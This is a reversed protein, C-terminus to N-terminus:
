IKHNLPFTIRRLVTKGMPILKVPKVRGTSQDVMNGTLHQNVGDQYSFDLANRDLSLNEHQDSEAFCYYDHFGELPYDRINERRYPIDLAYVLPGRQFYIEGNPFEQPLIEHVFQVRIKDGDSWTKRVEYFGNKLVADAGLIVADKAWGPMRFYLTFDIPQDISITFEIIDSYPYQTSQEIQVDVGNVDTKLESPGYSIAALGNEMRGWMQDVYYSFNRTYNPACCVAPESHTPSYKYRVEPELGNLSMGDLKYCNDPKGYTIASGDHNRFGLIGNFTLKEARDAYSMDGTKFAAQSFFNRLELMTCFETATETPDAALGAIWEMAHGAGSPLLCNNLKYLANAYATKLEDYGTAYYANLLSRLHEYTHVGHGTFPKDKEILFPYRVDNFARNIDFTSFARYLYVAYDQYVQNNTIRYLTECVDTLMLGHTVGGFANKLDFPNRVDENYNKMTVAMAKEVAELVQDEKTLEYYALMMRFATTQAWLEGNSGEHQYRLNKKYIGIYGDEDQSDLLNEVIVKSQQMAAEDGTLYAHRVFGDWWNGITEANWWMISTEWPAGTLILDGMEPIDEMGGRRATHFLDDGKIGPYLEDLAGVLGRDLDTKMMELLWGRPKNSGTPLIQIAAPIPKHPQDFFTLLKSDNKVVTEVQDVHGTFDEGQSGAKKSCNTMSLLILFVFLNCLIKM